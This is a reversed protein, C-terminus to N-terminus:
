LRPQTQGVEPKNGTSSETLEFFSILKQLSKGQEDLSESAAAAQEVLAANQQTMEDMQSVAKNVQEIGQTQEAGAAAIESIIDGVKKSSAVIEELTRGSEDVLM